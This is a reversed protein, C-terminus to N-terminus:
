EIIRSDMNFILKWEDNIKKWTSVVHFIGALDQNIDSDVDTKIVYHVQCIEPMNVIEEFAVMEYTKCDFERIIEAYESGTCRYGGCVMVANKDVLKLFAEKDRNKAAEWMQIELEKIM